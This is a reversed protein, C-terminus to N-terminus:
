SWLAKGREKLLEKQNRENKTCTATLSSAWIKPIRSDSYIFLYRTIVRDCDPVVRIGSGNARDTRSNFSNDIVECLALCKASKGFISNHYVLKKRDCFCASTRSCEAFYIGKGFVAGTEMMSTSSMNKLGTQLIGHWNYFPSGHFLYQSGRQAKLEAFVAEKRPSDICLRFQYETQMSPFRYAEDLQVLYGQCGNLVSRLLKFSTTGAIGDRNVGSFNQQIDRQTAMAAVSPINAFIKQVCAWNIRRRSKRWPLCSGVDHFLDSPVVGFLKDRRYTCRSAASAMSILLDAVVPRSYIIDLDAGIGNEIFASKCAELTCPVPKLGAFEQERGCVVCYKGLQPLSAQIHEYLRALFTLTGLESQCPWNHEFFIECIKSIQHRVKDSSSPTRDRSSATIRDGMSFQVEPKHEDGCLVSPLRVHMYIDSVGHLGLIETQLASLHDLWFILDFAAYTRSRQIYESGVEAVLHNVIEHAEVIHRGMRSLAIVQVVFVQNFFM